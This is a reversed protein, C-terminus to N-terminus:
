GAHGFSMANGKAVPHLFFIQTKIKSTISCKPLNYMLLRRTLSPNAKTLPGVAACTGFIESGLVM